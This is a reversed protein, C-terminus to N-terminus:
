MFIDILTRLVTCQSYINCLIDKYGEYTLPYIGPAALVPAPQSMLILMVKREIPKLEYWPIEMYFNELSDEM